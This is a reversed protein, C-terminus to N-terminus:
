FDIELSQVHVLLYICLTLELLMSSLFRILEFDIIFVDLYRRFKLFATFIFKLFIPSNTLVELRM